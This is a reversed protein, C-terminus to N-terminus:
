WVEHPLRGRRGRSGEVEEKSSGAESVTEFYGTRPAAGGFAHISTAPPEAPGAAAGGTFGVLWGSGKKAGCESLTSSGEERRRVQPEAFTRIPEGPARSGPGEGARPRADDTSPRLRPNLRWRGLAVSLPCGAALAVRGVEEPRFAQEYTAPAHLLSPSSVV